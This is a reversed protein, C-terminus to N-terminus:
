TSLKKIAYGVCRCKKSTGAVKLIIVMALKTTNGILERLDIYIPWVTCWCL